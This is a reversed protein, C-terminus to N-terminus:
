WTEDGLELPGDEQMGEAQSALHHRFSELSDPLAGEPIQGLVRLAAMPRGLKQTLVQALKLRVRPSPADLTRLYDRMVLAADDWRSQKLLAEMLDRWDRDPPWWGQQSRCAKKYVALAAEAEGLELHRRMTRLVSVAPDEVSRVLPARNRARRDKRVVDKPAHESSVRRRTIRAKQAQSKSQGTRRELVAFLDWNECDVLDLKLLAVAVLLGLVAGGLHALASSARFGTVSAELAELGIYLVAVWLIPFDFEMPLLRFLTVCQLENRPAWVLCMALLAFIVGSAGLMFIPQGTRALAQFVASEAVGIGLYVTLFARWGLKGEVIIGFAWLFVMNGILHGFGLHMFLSTVWQLPHLGEGLVLTWEEHRGAPFAFFSGINVVILGITAAPRHYIPADTGWPIIM